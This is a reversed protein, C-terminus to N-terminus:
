VHQRIIMCTRFQVSVCTWDSVQSRAAHPGGGMKCLKGLTAALRVLVSRLWPAARLRRHRNDNSPWIAEGLVNPASGAGIQKRHGASLNEVQVRGTRRIQEELKNGLDRGGEYV